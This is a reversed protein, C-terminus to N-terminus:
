IRRGGYKRLANAIEPVIRERAIRGIEVENLQLENPTHIDISLHLGGIELINNYVTAARYPRQLLEAKQRLDNERASESLVNRAGTQQMSSFGFSGSVGPRSGGQGASGTTPRFGQGSGQPRNGPQGSGSGSVMSQIANLGNQALQSFFSGIAQVGQHQLLLNFPYKSLLQQIWNLFASSTQMMRREAEIQQAVSINTLRVEENEGAQTAAVQQQQSQQAIEVAQQGSQRRTQLEQLILQQRAILQQREQTLEELRQRQREQREQEELARDELRRRQQELFDEKERQREQEFRRIADRAQGANRAAVAELLTNQLDEESRLRRKRYDEVARLTDIEFKQERERQERLNEEQEKFIRQEIQEIEKAIKKLERRLEKLSKRTWDVEDEFDDVEEEAQDVTNAATDITTTAHAAINELNELGQGLRGVRDAARDAVETQAAPSPNTPAPSQIPLYSGGDADDLASAPIARGSAAGTFLLSRGDEFTALEPEETDHLQYVSYPRLAGGKARGEASLASPAQSSRFPAVTAGSNRRDPLTSITAELLESLRKTLILAIEDRARDEVRLAADIYDTLRELLAERLREERDPDTNRLYRELAQQLDGAQELEIQLLDFLETLTEVRQLQELLPVIVYPDTEVFGETFRTLREVLVDRLTSLAAEDLTYISAIQDILKETADEVAGIRNVRFLTAFIDELIADVDQANNNKFLNELYFRLNLADYMTRLDRELELFARSAQTLPADPITISLAEEISETLGLESLARTFTQVYNESWQQASEDSFIRRAQDILEERMVQIYDRVSDLDFREPDAFVEVLKDSVTRSENEFLDRTREFENKGIGTISVFVGRIALAIQNGIAAFFRGIEAGLDRAFYIIAQRLFDFNEIVQDFSMAEFDPNFLRVIAEVLDVVLDVLPAILPASFVALSELFSLIGNLVSSVINGEPETLEALAAVIGNIASVILVAKALVPAYLQAFRVIRELFMLIGARFFASFFTTLGLAILNLRKPDMALLNRITRLINQVFDAILEFSRPVILPIQRLASNVIEEIVHTILNVIRVLINSDTLGLTNLVWKPIDGILSLVSRFLSQVVTVLPKLISQIVYATREVLGSNEITDLLDIIRDRIYAIIGQLNDVVQTFTQRITATLTDSQGTEIVDALGFFLPLNWLRDLERLFDALNNRASRIINEGNVIEIIFQVFESVIARLTLRIAKLLDAIPDLNIARLGFEFVNFFSVMARSILYGIEERNEYLIQRFVYFEQILKQGLTRFFDQVREIFDKLSSVEFIQGARSFFNIMATRLASLINGKNVISIIAGTLESILATFTDKFRKVNEAFADFGLIRSVFEITGFPNFIVGLVDGIARKNAVLWQRVRNLVTKFFAIIGEYLEGARLSRIASNFSIKTIAGVGEVLMSLLDGLGLRISQFGNDGKFFKLIGSTIRDFAIRLRNFLSAAKLYFREIADETDRSGFVVRAFDTQALTALAQRYQQVSVLAIDSLFMNFTEVFMAIDRITDRVRAASDSMRDFFSRIQQGNQEINPTFQLGFFKAIINATSRFIDGVASLGDQVIDKFRKFSDSAGGINYRLAQTFRSLIAGVSMLLAGVTTLTVIFSGFSLVFGAGALSLLPLKAALFVIAGSATLLVSGFKLIIGTGVTFFALLAGGSASVLIINRVLEKIPDPLQNFFRIVRTFFRVIPRIFDEAIPIFLEKVLRRSQVALRGFESTLRQSLRAAREQAGSLGRMEEITSAFGGFRVLANIASRGEVDAIDSLLRQRNEETMRELIAIFEELRVQLPRVRGAADAFAIGMSEFLEVTKERSLAALGSRLATGATSGQLGVRYMNILGAITEEFTLGLGSAITALGRDFGEILGAITARSIDAGAAVIDAVRSISEVSSRTTKDIMDFSMLATSLISAGRDISLTEDLAALASASPLLVEIEFPSLNTKAFDLAAAIAQQLDTGFQDAVQYALNELRALTRPDEFQAGGFVPFQQLTEYFSLAQSSKLQRIWNVPNFTRMLMDGIRDIDMAFRRAQGALTFFASSLRSQFTLVARPLNYVLMNIQSEIVRSLLVAKTVDLVSLSRAVGTVGERTSRAIKNAGRLRDAVEQAQKGLNIPLAKFLMGVTDKLNMLMFPRILQDGYQDHFQIYKEFMLNVQRLIDALHAVRKPEVSRSAAGIEKIMMGVVRVFSMVNKAEKTYYTFFFFARRKRMDPVQIQSLMAITKVSRSLLSGIGDLNGKPVRMKLIPKISKFVINIFEAVGEVNRYFDTKGKWFLFRWHFRPFVATTMRFFADVIRRVAEGLVRLRQAARDDRIGYTIRKLHRVFSALLNVNRIVRHSFIGLNLYYIPMRENQLFEFINIVDKILNTIVSRYKASQEQDFTARNASTFVNKMVDLFRRLLQLNRVARNSFIGVRFFIPSLRVSNLRMFLNLLKQIPAIIREESYKFNEDKIQLSQYLSITKFIGKLMRAYTRLMKVNKHFINSPRFNIPANLMKLTNILDEVGDIMRRFVTVRAKEETHYIPDDTIPATVDKVLKVLLRAMDRLNKYNKNWEKFKESTVVPLTNITNIMSTIKQFLEIFNKAAPLSSMDALKIPERKKFFFWKKKDRYMFEIFLDNFSRITEIVGSFKRRLDEYRIVRVTEIRQLQILLENIDKMASIAWVMSAMRRDEHLGASKAMQDIKKNKFISEMTEFFVILLSRFQQANQKLQDIPPLQQFLLMKLSEAIAKVTRTLNSFIEFSSVGTLEVSFEQTALKQAKKSIVKILEYFADFLSEIAKKRDQNFTYLRLSAMKEVTRTVMTLLAFVDRARGTVESISPVASRDFRNESLGKVLRNATMVYVDLLVALEDSKRRATAMDITPTAQATAQVVNNLNAGLQRADIGGIKHTEKFLRVIERYMAIVRQTRQVATEDIGAALSLMRMNLRQIPEIISEIVSPLNYIASSNKAMQNFFVYMNLLLKIQQLYAKASSGDGSQAIRQLVPIFSEIFRTLPEIRTSEPLKSTSFRVFATVMDSIANITRTFQQFDVVKLTNSLVEVLKDNLTKFANLFVLINQNYRKESRMSLLRSIALVIKSLANITRIMPTEFPTYVSPTQNITLFLRQISLLVLQLRPLINGISKVTLLTSIAKVISSIATFSKILTEPLPKVQSTVQNIIQNYDLIFNKLNNTFFTRPLRENAEAIIAIFERYARSFYRLGRTSQISDVANAVRKLAIGIQRLNDISTKDISQATQVFSVFGKVAEESFMDKFILPSLKSVETLKQELREIASILARIGAASAGLGGISAGSNAM